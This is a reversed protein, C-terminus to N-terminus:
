KSRRIANLSLAAILIVGQCIYQYFSSVGLLNLMNNIITIIFVGAVTGLPDGVAGTMATGGVVTATIANMSFNKGVTADGSNMRAALFVGALAALLGALAYATMKIREVKIGTSYAASENGGVARISKGYPSQNTLVRVFILVVIFLMFPFYGEWGRTMFRRFGAHVVGGPKPMIFLAIGEYIATTALTVIIPALRGRTIIFGNLSGCLFGLILASLISFFCGVESEPNMLVVSLANTLSVVPGLSLDIGGTLIVLTQGLAVMLLPFAALMMNKLNRETFFAENFFSVFIMLALLFVYIIVTQSNKRWFHKDIGQKESM